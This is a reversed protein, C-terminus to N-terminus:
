SEIAVAWHPKTEAADAAAATEAAAVGAWDAPEVTLDAAELVIAAAAVAVVVAVSAVAEQVYHNLQKWDWRLDSQTM